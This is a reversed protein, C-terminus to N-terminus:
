CLSDMLGECDLMANCEDPNVMLSLELRSTATNLIQKGYAASM